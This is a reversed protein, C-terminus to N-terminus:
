ESAAAVGPRGPRRAPSRGPPGPAAPDGPGPLSLAGLLLGCLLAAGHHDQVALLAGGALVVLGALVRGAFAAGSRRGLAASTLVVVGIAAVQAPWGGLALGALAAAYFAAFQGAQEPLGGRGRLLATAIGGVLGCVAVSNGGGPPEWAYGLAQGLLGAGLYLVLWRARGLAREALVGFVALTVLNFVLQAPGDSQVLLPSALRWWHRVSLGDPDRQLARMVSPAAAAWLNVATTGTLVTATLWPIKRM